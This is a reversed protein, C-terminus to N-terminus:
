KHWNIYDLINQYTNINQEFFEETYNLKIRNALRSIVNINGKVYGKKPIVRDLEASNDHRNKQGLGPRRKYDLLVGLIPCHTPEPVDLHTIEFPINKKKARQRAAGLAMAKWIYPTDKRQISFGLEYNKQYITGVPRDMIRAIEYGPIFQDTLERLKETESATWYTNKRPGGKRGLQGNVKRRLQTNLTCCKKCQWALGDPSRKRKYFEQEPKEKKCQSCTKILIVM